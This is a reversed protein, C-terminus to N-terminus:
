RRREDLWREEGSLLTISKQNIDALKSQAFVQTSFLGCFSLAVCVCIRAVLM